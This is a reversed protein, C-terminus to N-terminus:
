LPMHSLIHAIVDVTFSNGIMKYRQTNSVGSTYNDPITQLRECELPTLKRIVYSDYVFPQQSESTSVARGKGNPSLCRERPLYNGKERHTSVAITEPADSLEDQQKIMYWALTSGGTAPSTLTQSKGNDGYIRNCQSGNFQGVRVPKAYLGTKGGIGGSNTAITISKGNTSYVREGQRGEGISGIRDPSDQFITEDIAGMLADEIGPDYEKPEFVVQSMSNTLYHELNTGKYYSADICYSKDKDVEGSELIDCLYIHCDDPQTVNPINTWYLRKRHQASVLSSNIMIPEVGMESTIIDRSEKSMSVVNELLFYTPKLKDRLRLYEYFLGSRSGQLGKRNKAAISLDQCPSGGILLDIKPLTTLDITTIDGLQITDCYNRCAVQIAYKDIESAFYKDPTIGIRELAIRAASLGDFASLVNM